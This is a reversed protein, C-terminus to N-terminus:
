PVCVRIVQGYSCVDEPTSTPAAQSLNVNAGSYKLIKAVAAIGNDTAGSSEETARADPRNVMAALPELANTVTNLYEVGGVMGMVGFGYAAAQRVEPYEDSLCKLLPPVFQGQYQACREFMNHILDSLRALIEGEVEAEDTLKEKVDDADADAAM